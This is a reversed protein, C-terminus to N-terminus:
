YQGAPVVAAAKHGAPEYQAVGEKSDVHVDPWYQGAPVVVAAKHGAPEYQGVVEVM